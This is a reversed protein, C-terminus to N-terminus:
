VTIAFEECRNATSEEQYTLQIGQHFFVMKQQLLCIGNAKVINGLHDEHQAHTDPANHQPDFFIAAVFSCFSLM